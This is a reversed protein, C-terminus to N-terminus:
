SVTAVHESGVMWLVDDPELTLGPDPNITRLSKRELGVILCKHEERIKSERITKGVWPSNKEVLFRQLRYQALDNSYDFDNLPGKEIEKRLSDIAEDTGLVLLADFPFIHDRATPPTIHENGRQIAVVNVNHKARLDIDHLTRGVLSSNPHVTLRVLHLDWPALANLVADIAPTDKGKLNNLFRLEFWRYSHELRRYFIFFVLSSVTLVMLIATSTPFFNDSLFGLWFVTALHGFFRQVGTFGAIVAGKRTKGSTRFANFM